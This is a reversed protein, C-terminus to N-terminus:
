SCISKAYRISPKLINFPVPTKFSGDSGRHMRGIREPLSMRVKGGLNKKDALAFRAITEDRMDLNISISGKKRRRRWNELLRKVLREQRHFDANEFIDLEQAIWGEALMGVLVSMGHSISYNSAAEIAHGITHGYNLTSRIGFDYPDKSVIRAKIKCCPEILPAIDSISEVHDNNKGELQHFIKTSSIVGYKVMEGLGNLIECDPLTKLFAPDILVGDPLYFTGIQNKGWDADVGTKGGISSDIQALLTTPIQLYRVGRKYISAVFGGIDGVVGGGLLILLGDKDFGLKALRALINTCTAFTKSKEGPPIEILDTRAIRSFSQVITSGYLKGVNLDTLVVCSTPNRGRLLLPVVLQDLQSGKKSLVLSERVFIISSSPARGKKEDQVLALNKASSDFVRLTTELRAM